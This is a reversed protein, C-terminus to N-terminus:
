SANGLANRNRDRRFLAVTGNDVRATVRRSARRDSTVGGARLTRSVLIAQKFTSLKMSM